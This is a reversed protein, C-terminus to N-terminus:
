PQAEEAQWRALTAKHQPMDADAFYTNYLPHEPPICKRRFNALRTRATWIEIFRGGRSRMLVCVRDGGGGPNPYVVYGLAGTKFKRDAVRRNCAIVWRDRQEVM